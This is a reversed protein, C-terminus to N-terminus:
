NTTKIKLTNLNITITGDLSTQYIISDNEKLIEIVGKSPHNFKNDLGVSILSISPNITNIFKKSSSTKSGHHGVKLITIDKLDYKKLLKQESEISADGMFLMSIDNYIGYYIQSSSNEDEFTENLQILEIDGCNITLGEEGITVPYNKIIEEELQNTKGQNIIINEVKFNELLTKAEGMHDDDGHSLLLHDLKRIGLSKLLPIITGTAIESSSEKKNYSFTGGTDILINENNSHLLISDGQGVNIMKIYTTKTFYPYLYHTILLLLLPFINKKKNSIIGKLTIIVTIIYAIYIFINLRPFTFTLITIKSLLLSLNELLKTTKSFIPLLFPCIFTVISLPFIIISVLPVFILNYIISLLNIEFFNYLSIPLSVLFSVLSIKLITIFYNKANIHPAMIILSLSISYSYLFGIDYIYNENILLTISLSIIYLNTPKIYFYYVKNVSFLIFFLVGRLISPSLGTLLLYFLLFLSTIFYRKSETIKLKKLIKLFISSLLTIHMGSIAFLHSIGNKQYSTTIEKELKTKDGIIFTYLYPDNNLHLIIKQKIFYYISRNKSIRTLTTSTMIYFINKHELYKKYNFLNEAPNISPEKLTGTAEVKDGLNYTCNENDKLYYTVLVKEKEKLTLTIKNNNQKINIIIGTVKTINKDYKSQHPIQLRFITLIIVLILIIYYPYNSLLLTRLKLM